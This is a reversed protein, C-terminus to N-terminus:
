LSGQSIASLIFVITSGLWGDDRRWNVLQLRYHWGMRELIREGM